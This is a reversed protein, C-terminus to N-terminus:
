HTTENTLITNTFVEFLKSAVDQDSENVFDIHKMSEREESVNDNLWLVFNVSVEKAFLLLMKNTVWNHSKHNKNVWNTIEEDTLEKM